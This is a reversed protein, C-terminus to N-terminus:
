RGEAYDVLYQVLREANEMPVANYNSARIGGVSRHGKLGQLMRKEAGALFAKEKEADGGYVRFCVNMRSRVSKDPVVHYVKDYKDLTDYILKAKANAVEEQGSVKKAGFTSVLSTIVQGAIWLNFIPLTNYLSDNKATTAYDLVIPGPLGGLPLARLLSPPPTPTKPPLLSKCHGRRSANLLTLKTCLSPSNLSTL